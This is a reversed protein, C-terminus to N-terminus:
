AARLDEILAGRMSPPLEVAAAYAPHDVVLRAARGLDGLAARQGPSLPFRLFQVSSVKGDERERGDEYVAPVAAEGDLELRIHRCVGTLRQLMLAREAADPYEILLTVSLEAPGPLLPFYAELEDAIAQPAEIREVRVMEQVQWLVTARNEFAATMHPGLALRRQAKVRLIEAHLQPRRRLFEPTPLLDNVTLAAM